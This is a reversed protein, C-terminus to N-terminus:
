KKSRQQKPRELSDCDSLFRLIEIQQNASISPSDHWMHPKHNEDFFGFRSLCYSYALAAQMRYTHDEKKVFAWGVKHDHIANLIWRAFVAPEDVQLDYHRESAPYFALNNEPTFKSRVEKPFCQTPLTITGVTGKYKSWKKPDGRFCEQSIGTAIVAMSHGCDLPSVTEVSYVSLEDSGNELLHKIVREILDDSWPREKTQQAENIILIFQQLSRAIRVLYKPRVCKGRLWEYLERGYGQVQFFDM